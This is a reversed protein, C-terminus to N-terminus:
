KYRRLPNEYPNKWLSKLHRAAFVDTWKNSGFNQTLSKEWVASSAISKAREESKPYVQTMRAWQPARINKKRKM